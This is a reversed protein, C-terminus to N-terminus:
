VPGVRRIAVDLKTELEEFTDPKVIYDRASSRIARGVDSVFASSTLFVVPTEDMVRIKRLADLFQFGNMGPMSIDLFILAPRIRGSSLEMLTRAPALRRPPQPVEDVHHRLVRQQALNRLKALDIKRFDDVLHTVRDSGEDGLPTALKDHARQRFDPAILRQHDLHDLIQDDISHDVVLGRHWANFDASLDLVTATDDQDAVVANANLRLVQVLNERGQLPQM